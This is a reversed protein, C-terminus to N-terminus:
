LFTIKDVNLEVDFLVVDDKRYSLAHSPMKTPFTGLMKVVASVDKTTDEILVYSPFAYESKVGFYGSDDIMLSRWASFYAFVLDFAPKVFSLRVKPMSMFNSYGRQEAGYRIVNDSSVSYEGFDIEQCHQGIAEPAFVGIGPPLFEFNYSRQLGGKSLVGGLVNGAVRLAASAVAGGVNGVGPITFGAFKEM